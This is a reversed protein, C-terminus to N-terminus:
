CSRLCQNRLVLCNQLQDPRSPFTVRNICDQFDRECRSLCAPDPARTPPPPANFQSVFIEVRRNREVEVLSRQRPFAMRTAGAGSPAMFTVRPGGVRRILEAQVANARRESVALHFAADRRRDLDAHGIVCVAVPQVKAQEAIAVAAIALNDREEKSLLSISNDYQKFRSVVGVRIAGPPPCISAAEWETEHAAPAEFYIAATAL